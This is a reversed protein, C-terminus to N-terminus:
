FAVLFLSQWSVARYRYRHLQFSIITPSQRDRQTPTRGQAAGAHLSNSLRAARTVLASSVRSLPLNWLSCCRSRDDRFGRLVEVYFHFFFVRHFISARAIKENTRRFTATNCFRNKPLSLFFDRCFHLFYFMLELNNIRSYFIKTLNIKFILIFM